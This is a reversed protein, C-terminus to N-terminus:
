SPLPTIHVQLFKVGSAGHVASIQGTYIEGRVNPILEYFGGFPDLPIGIGVGISSRLALYIKTDSDNIFLGYTRNSNAAQIVTSIDAISATFVDYSGISIPSSGYLPSGDKRCQFTGLRGSLDFHADVRDGIAVGVPQAANDAKGGIKVPNGSDPADHSRNGVSRVSGELDAAIPSYDGDASTLVANGDNRVTLAMVGLNGSVHAADEAHDIAQLELLINALVADPEIQRAM